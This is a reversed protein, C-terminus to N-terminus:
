HQTQTEPLDPTLGLRAIRERLAQLLEDDTLADFEGPSHRIPTEIFTRRTPSRCECAKTSAV